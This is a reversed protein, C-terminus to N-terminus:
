TIVNGEGKFDALRQEYYKLSIVNATPVVLLHPRDNKEQLKKLIYLLSCSKGTGKPGQVFIGDRTVTDPVLLTNLEEWLTSTVIM